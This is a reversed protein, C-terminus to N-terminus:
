DFHSDEGIKPTSFVVFKFGGGLLKILRNGSERDRIIRMIPNNREGTTDTTAVNKVDIWQSCHMLM